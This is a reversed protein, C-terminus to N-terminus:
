ACQNRGCTERIRTAALLGLLAFGLMAGLGLRYDALVYAGTATAGRMLAARDLLWGVLPQLIGASLFAGTNVLSTAMGSLAPPNVEKACSWSLTFGAACAGMLGFLLLTMGLPMSWGALLAGWCLAYALALTLLVPKRRELRDSLMGSFLASFAFALLLVTTHWSALERSMGFGQMLFPVAWLGAFSFFSGAMGVNVWFGPWSAPNRVVRQLGALWHGVHPQHDAKGELQRMTPLGASGPHDHILRWSLLALLMSLLGIGVFVDRWSMLTVLWALPVAALVAGINGLLVTLGTATAFHREYFWAANIKLLAIFMVSVGLGVLTRGVAAMEFSPALGFLMAGLGGILGGMAVIRRPGLTDVLIGTPIQMVTYVYFYTAALVGLQAGSTHFAQQLDGAITSPAVRHFFSLIYAMAVLLFATWRHRWMRRLIKKHETM